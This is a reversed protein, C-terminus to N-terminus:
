KPHREQSPSEKSEPSSTSTPHAAKKEPAKKVEPSPKPKSPLSEKKMQVKKSSPPKISGKNRGLNGACGVGWLTTYFGAFYWVVYCNPDQLIEGYRADTYCYSKSLDECYSYYVPFDSAQLVVRDPSWGTLAGLKVKDHRFINITYVSGNRIEIDAPLPCGDQCKQTCVDYEYACATYCDSKSFPPYGNCTVSSCFLLDSDCNQCCDSDKLHSQHKSTKNVTLPANAFVCQPAIISFMAVVLSLPSLNPIINM